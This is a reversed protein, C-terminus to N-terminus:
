CSVCPSSPNRSRSRSRAKNLRPGLGVSAPYALRPQTVGEDRTPDPDSAALVDELADTNEEDCPHWAAVDVTPPAIVWVGSGLAHDFEEETDVDLAPEGDIVTERIM